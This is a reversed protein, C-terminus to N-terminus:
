RDSNKGAPDAAYSLEGTVLEHGKPSVFAVELVKGAKPTVRWSGEGSCEPTLPTSRWLEDDARKDVLVTCSTTPYVIMGTPGSFTAVADWAAGATADKAVSSLLGHYTAPEPLGAADAPGQSRGSEDPQATVTVTAPAASPAPESSQRSVAYFGAVVAAITAFVLVVIGGIIVPRTAPARDQLYAFSGNDM